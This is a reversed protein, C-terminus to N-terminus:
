AENEATTAPLSKDEQYFGIKHSTHAILADCLEFTLPLVFFILIVSILAGRAILLGVQNIMPSSAVYYIGLCALILISSSTLIPQASHELAEFSAQRKPMRRRRALYDETYIISYDVAAGLQVADIVLFCVFNITEGTFYPVGENMWISVEIAMIMLVPLSVSKFMVLLVAGIALISALKVTLNDSGTVAKIDAYSVANGVLKYKDGYHSQCIDRVQDVLDFASASEDPINSTLM